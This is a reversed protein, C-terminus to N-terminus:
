FAGKLVRHHSPDYPPPIHPPRRHWGPPLPITGDRWGREIQQRYRRLEEDSPAPAYAEPPSLLHDAIWDGVIIGGVVAVGIGVVAM